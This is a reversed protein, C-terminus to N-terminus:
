PIAALLATLRAPDAITLQLTDLVQQLEGYDTAYVTCGDAEPDTDVGTFSLAAAIQDVLWGLGHGNPEEYESLVDACPALFATVDNM